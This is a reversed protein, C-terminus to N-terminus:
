PEMPAGPWALGKAPGGHVGHLGYKARSRGASTTEVAENREGSTTRIGM